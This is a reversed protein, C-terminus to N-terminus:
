KTIKRVLLIAIAIFFASFVILLMLNILQFVTDGFDM